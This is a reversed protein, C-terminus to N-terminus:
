IDSLSNKKLLIKQKASVNENEQQYGFYCYAFQKTFGSCNFFM